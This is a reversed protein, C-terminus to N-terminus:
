KKVYLTVLMDRESETMKGFARILAALREDEAYLYALPVGLQKALACATELDPAHVAREYRNIRTSAVDKSLGIAEGLAAQSLGAEERLSRLRTAVLRIVPFHLDM